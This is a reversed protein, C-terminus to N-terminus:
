VIRILRFHLTSVGLQLAKRQRSHRTSVKISSSAAKVNKGTERKKRVIKRKQETKFEM